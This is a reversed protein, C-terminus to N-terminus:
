TANKNSKRRHLLDIYGRRPMGPLKEVKPTQKVHLTTNLRAVLAQLVPQLVNERVSERKRWISIQRCTYLDREKALSIYYICVHIMYVYIHIYVCIYIDAYRYILMQVCPAVQTYM